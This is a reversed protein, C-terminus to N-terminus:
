TTPAAPSRRRGACARCQPGPFSLGYIDVADMGTRGEPEARMSETRPEAGFIGVRLSTSRPEAGAREREDLLSLFYSPTVMIVTAGFDQILRVQRETM